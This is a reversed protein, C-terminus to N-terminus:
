IVRLTEGSLLGANQTTVSVIVQGAVGNLMYAAAAGFSNRTNGGGSIHVESPDGGDTDSRWILLYQNGVATPIDITHTDSNATFEADEPTDDTSWGVYLSHTPTAPMGGGAVTLTLVGGSETAVIGAGVANIKTVPNPLDVSEDAALITSGPGVPGVPGQIGDNGNNGTFWGLVTMTSNANLAPGSNHFSITIGDSDDTSYVNLSTNQEFALHAQKAAANALKLAATAILVAPTTAVTTSSLSSCMMTEGIGWPSQGTSPTPSPTLSPRRHRQRGQVGLLVRLGLLGLLVLLDLYPLPQAQRGQCWQHLM